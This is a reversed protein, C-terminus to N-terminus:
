AIPLEGTFVALGAVRDQRRECCQDLGDLVIGGFLLQDFLGLRQHLALNCDIALQDPKPGRSVARRDRREDALLITGCGGRDVSIQFLGHGFLAPQKGGSAGFGSGVSREQQRDIEGADRQNQNEGGNQRHRGAARAPFQLIRQNCGFGGVLRQLGRDGLAGLMQNGRM